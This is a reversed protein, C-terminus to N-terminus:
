GGVPGHSGLAEWNGGVLGHCHGTGGLQERRRARPLAWQRGTAGSSGTATGLAEWNSGGVARPLAWHRGTAGSPGTATGRAEWNGGVLGHCHGTGGLQGSPGTATGLAEWNSGGRGTATGLAEWNGGVPGHCHWHRGTAGKSQGTATGLAEWNGGVGTATGLEEWNSGGVPGHCHGTGGLQGRRARPVAWRRGTSKCPPRKNNVWRMCILCDKGFPVRCGIGLELDLFRVAVWVGFVFRLELLGERSLLPGLEVELLLGCERLVVELKVRLIQSLPPFIAALHRPGLHATWKLAGWMDWWGMHREDQRLVQDEVQMAWAFKVQAPLAGTAELQHSRAPEVRQRWRPLSGRRMGWSGTANGPQGIKRMQNAQKGDLLSLGNAVLSALQCVWDTLQWSRGGRDSKGRLQGQRGPGREHGHSRNGEAKKQAETGKGDEHSPSKAKREAKGRNRSRRSRRQRPREQGPLVVERPSESVPPRERVCDVEEKSPLERPLRSQEQTGCVTKAVEEAAADVMGNDREGDSSPAESPGILRMSGLSCCPLCEVGAPELPPTPLEPEKGKALVMARKPCDKKKHPGRCRFCKLVARSGRREKGRSHFDKMGASGEGKSAGPKPRVVRAMPVSLTSHPNTGSGQTVLRRLLVMEEQLKEVM